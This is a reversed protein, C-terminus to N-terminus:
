RIIKKFYKKNRMLNNHMVINKILVQEDDEQLRSGGSVATNIVLDFYNDKFYNDVINSNSLDLSQRNVKVLDYNLLLNSLNRAIYGDCGTILIRKM